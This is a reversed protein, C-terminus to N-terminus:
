SPCKAYDSLLGDTEKLKKKGALFPFLLWFVCAIDPFQTFSNGFVCDNKKKETKCASPNYINGMSFDPDEHFAKTQTTSFDM